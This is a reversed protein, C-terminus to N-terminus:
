NRSCSRAASTGCLAHELAASMARDRLYRSIAHAEDPSGPRTMEDRVAGAPLASGLPGALVDDADYVNDWSAVARPVRLAARRGADGAFLMERVLRLALPSGVTVLRIRGVTGMLSDARASNLYGYTVLSGLSYAIVVVPRRESVAKAIVTGVAREAACRTRPDVLYLLEGAAGRAARVERASDGALGELVGLLGAVVDRAGWGFEFASATAAGPGVGCDNASEPDLADAYWAIRVDEPRLRHIGGAAFAADLDRQWTRRLAATDKGFEGRGHVLVVIPRLDPGPAARPASVCACAGSLLTAIGLLRM